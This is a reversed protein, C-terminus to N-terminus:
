SSSVPALVVRFGRYNTSSRPGDGSRVAARLDNENNLWSGGRLVRTGAAEPDERGDNPDYPYPEYLSRCWEWVNGVMDVCGYPSDGGPSYRGVRTTDRLGDERSNCRERDWEDGGPFIRGDAGRAAKEWEAESPLRYARGTVEALWRCYAMADRWFVYVVPHREKGTPPKGAQWHKPAERGTAEVFPLYEANTVPTKAISYDPLYLTHQPKEDEFAKRDKQPDSGMLFEGAPILILEPEFPQRATIAPAQKVEDRKPKVEDSPKRKAPRPKAREPPSAAQRKGLEYDLSRKLYEFGDPEFLDVWHLDALRDPVECEELRAPILYIAGEPTQKLVDLAWAIEEQVVGRKTVSNCSLCVVVLNYPNTIINKIAPRWPQGPLLDVKDLWPAYGAQTLRDYLQRVRAKDESAHCLFIRPKGSEAM